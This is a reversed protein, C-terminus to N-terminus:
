AGIRRHRAVALGPPGQIGPAPLDEPRLGKVLEGPDVGLAFALRVIMGLSPMAKGAELKRIVAVEIGSMSELDTQTVRLRETRLGRIRAGITAAADQGIRPM